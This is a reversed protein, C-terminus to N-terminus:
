IVIVDRDKLVEGQGIIRVKGLCTSCLPYIRVGDQAKDILKELRSVMKKHRAADIDVEFVSLQVRDGYDELCDAVKQRRKDNIVDYTVVYKL